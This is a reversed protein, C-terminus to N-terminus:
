RQFYITAGFKLIILISKNIRIASVYNAKFSLSVSEMDNLLQSFLFSKPLLSSSFINKVDPDVAILLLPDLLCRLM